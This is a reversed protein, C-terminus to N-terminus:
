GFFTGSGQVSDIRDLRHGERARTEAAGPNFRDSNWWQLLRSLEVKVSSIDESSINLEAQTITIDDEAGTCFQLCDELALEDLPYNLMECALILQGRTLYGLGAVDLKRFVEKMDEETAMRVDGGSPKSGGFHRLFLLCSDVEQQKREASWNLEKGMLEVVRPIVQIAAHKNLFALRTRRAIVDEARVAWDHRAAFVIEAELYPFDPHLLRPGSSLFLASVYENGNKQGNGNSKANNNNSANRFSSMDLSLVDDARGGYTVALHNAVAESVGYAQILRIALNSDYGELGVLDVELTRCKGVGKPISPTVELVKDIADEAMERYTTWKGGSVFIM